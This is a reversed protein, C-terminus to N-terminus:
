GAVYTALAGPDNAVARAAELTVVRRHVLDALCRELPIMGDKKGAQMASTVGGTKGERIAAAVAHNVRLVETAVVRGEGGARPVLRQAVVARLSDALQVRIQQQREAPYTDVIREVASPASRSHLSALVLHGTEAATLALSVTEPDRMEGILLVDPDERLADRLGTAFDRVDRGVQRQLVHGRLPGATAGGLVYEIPDELTVLLSAHRGLCETALAALTSSKGSGTPGTVLVLGHPLDVLDDLAIPHRLEALTPPAAALLRIAAALGASTSFVNARFRGAGEVGLGLDVSTMSALRRRVDAGLLPGLLRGLDAPAASPLARLRGDVRLLPAAGDLLHVDSAGFAAARRLLEELEPPPASLPSAAVLPATAASTVAPAPADLAPPAPARPPVPVPVPAQAASVPAAKGRGRLFVADFDLAGAPGRRTLTLRFPGLSQAEYVMEVRGTEALAKQRESSLLDGLLERLTEASTKPIVLRKQAGDAFMQPERDTGLRLENAGQRDVLNLLSDIAAM